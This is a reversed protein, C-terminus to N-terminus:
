VHEAFTTVLKGNVVKSVFQEPVALEIPDDDDTKGPVVVNITSSLSTVVAADRSEVGSLFISAGNVKDIQIQPLLGNAQIQLKSSNVAEIGSVVGDCIVGSNEVQSIVVAACKGVVTVVAFTVKEIFVKEKQNGITVTVSECADKKGHVGSVTWRDGVLQVHTSM